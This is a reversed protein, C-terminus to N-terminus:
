RIPKYPMPIGDWKAGACLILLPLIKDRTRFRHNKSLIGALCIAALCPLAAEPRTLFATVAVLGLLSSYGVSPKSSWKLLLGCFAGNVAMALMTEMGNRMNALFVGSLSLPVVILFLAGTFSKLLKGKANWVVAATMAFAAAFGALSSFLVLVHEPKLPLFSGMWILAGWFLSTMGFTHAGDPNWSIGLGQRVHLAYRYFMFADDFGLPHRLNVWLIASGLMALVLRLFIKAKPHELRSLPLSATHERRGYVHGSHVM